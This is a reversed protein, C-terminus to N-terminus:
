SSRNFGGATIGANLPAYNPKKKTKPMDKYMANLVAWASKEEMARTWQTDQANKNAYKWEEPPPTIHTHLESLRTGCCKVRSNPFKRTRCSTQQAIRVEPEWKIKLSITTLIFHKIHIIFILNTHQFKESCSILEMSWRKEFKRM